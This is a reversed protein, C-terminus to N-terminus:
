RPLPAKTYTPHWETAPTRALRAMERAEFERAQEAMIAVLNARTDAAATITGVIGAMAWQAVKATCAAHSGTYSATETQGTFYNAFTATATFTATMTDEQNATPGQPRVLVM